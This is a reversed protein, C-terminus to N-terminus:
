ESKIHVKQDSRNFVDMNEIDSGTIVGIPVKSVRFVKHYGNSVHLFTITPNREIHVFGSARYSEKNLTKAL